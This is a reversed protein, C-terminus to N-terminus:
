RFVGRVANLIRPFDSEPIIMFRRAPINITYARGQTERNFRKASSKAFLSRNANNLRFKYRRAPMNITGGENQIQGYARALPNLGFMVQLTSVDKSLSITRLNGSEILTKAGPRKNLKQSPKWKEPRGGERFNQSVSRRGQEMLVDLTAESKVRIYEKIKNEIEASNM